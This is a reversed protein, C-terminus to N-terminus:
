TEIKPSTSDLSQDAETEDDGTTGPCDPKSEGTTEDQETMEQIIDKLSELRTVKDFGYRQLNSTLSNVLARKYSDLQSLARPNEAARQNKALVADIARNFTHLLSADSAIVEALIRMATSIQSSGGKDAVLGALIGDRISQEEPTLAGNPRRSLASLGHKFANQNQPPGSRGKIGAM